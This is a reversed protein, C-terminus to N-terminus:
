PTSRCGSAQQPQLTSAAPLMSTQREREREPSHEANNKRQADMAFASARPSSHSMVLQDTRGSEYALCIGELM